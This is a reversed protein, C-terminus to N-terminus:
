RNVRANSDGFIDRASVTPSTKITASNVGDKVATKINGPLGQIANTLKGLEAGIGDRASYAAQGAHVVGQVSDPLYGTVTDVVARTGAGVDRKRQDQLGTVAAGVQSEITSEDARDRVRQGAATRSFQTRESPKMSGLLHGAADRLGVKKGLANLHLNAAREQAQEEAVKRSEIAYFADEEITEVAAPNIRRAYRATEEGEIGGGFFGSSVMLSKKRLHKLVSAFGRRSLVQSGNPGTLYPEVYGKGEEAKVAMRVKVPDAGSIASMVKAGVAEAQEKGLGMGQLHAQMAAGRGAGGQFRALLPMLRRFSDELGLFGSALNRDSAIQKLKGFEAGIRQAPIGLKNWMEAGFEVMEGIGRNTDEAHMGLIKMSESANDLGSFTQRDFQKVAGAFEGTSVGALRGFDRFKIKLSDIDKGGRIAMRSIQDDAAKFKEAAAGFNIGKFDNAAKAADIGMRTLGDGIGKLTGTLGVTFKGITGLEDAVGRLGSRVQADGEIGLRIKAENGM